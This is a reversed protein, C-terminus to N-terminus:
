SFCLLYIILIFNFKFLIRQFCFKSFPLIKHQCRESNAMHHCRNHPLIKSGATSRSRKEKAQRELLLETGNTHQYLRLAREESLSLKEESPNDERSLFSFHIKGKRIRLDLLTPKKWKCYFVLIYYLIFAMAKASTLTLYSNCSCVCLAHGRQGAWMM